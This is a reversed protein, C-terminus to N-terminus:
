VAVKNSVSSSRFSAPSFYLMLTPTSSGIVPFIFTRNAICHSNLDPFFKKHHSIFFCSSFDSISKTIVQTSPFSRCPFSLPIQCCLCRFLYLFCVVSFFSVPIPIIQLIPESSHFLKSGPHPFYVKHGPSMNRVPQIYCMGLQINDSM